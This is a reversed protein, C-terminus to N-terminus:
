LKISDVTFLKFLNTSNSIANFTVFKDSLITSSTSVANLQTAVPNFYSGVQAILNEFSDFATNAQAVAAAIEANRAIDGLNAFMIEANGSAAQVFSNRLTTGATGGVENLISTLSTTDNNFEALAVRIKSIASEEDIRAQNLNFNSDALLQTIDQLEQQSKTFTVTAEKAKSIIDSEKIRTDILDENLSAITAEIFVLDEQTSGRKDLLNQYESEVAVISKLERKLAGQRSSLETFEVYGSFDLNGAALLSSLQSEINLLEGRLTASSRGSLKNSKEFESVAKAATEFAEKATDRLDFL